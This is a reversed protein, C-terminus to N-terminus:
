PHAAVAAGNVSIHEVQGKQVRRGEGAATERAPRIRTLSLYDSQKAENLNPRAVRVAGTDAAIGGPGRM